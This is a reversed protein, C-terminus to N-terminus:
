GRLVASRTWTLSQIELKEEEEVMPQDFVGVEVEMLSSGSENLAASVQSDNPDSTAESIGSFNVDGAADAVFASLLLHDQSEDVESGHVSM